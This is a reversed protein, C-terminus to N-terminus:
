RTRIAASRRPARSRPAAPAARAPRAATRGRRVRRGPRGTLLCDRRGQALCDQVWLAGPAFGWNWVSPQPSPAPAQQIVIRDAIARAQADLQRKRRVAEEREARAEAAKQRTHKARAQRAEEDPDVWRDNKRVHGLAMRSRGNNADIAIVMSHLTYARSALGKTTAWDALSQLDSVSSRDIAALRRDFEHLSSSSREVKAVESRPFAITGM